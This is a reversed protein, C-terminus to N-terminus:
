RATIFPDRLQAAVFTQAGVSNAQLSSIQNQFCKEREGEREREGKEWTFKLGPYNGLNERLLPV